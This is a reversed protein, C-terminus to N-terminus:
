TLVQEHHESLKYDAPVHLQDDDYIKGIDSDALIDSDKNSRYQGSHFLTACCIADCIAM